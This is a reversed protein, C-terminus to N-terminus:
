AAYSVHIDWKNARKEIVTPEVVSNLYTYGLKKYMEKSYIFRDAEERSQARVRIYHFVDNPHLLYRYWYEKENLRLEIWTLLRKLISALHFYIWRKLQQEEAVPNMSKEM